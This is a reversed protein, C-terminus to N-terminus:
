RATHRVLRVLERGEIRQTGVSGDGFHVLWAFGPKSAYPSASWVAAGPDNPFASPDVTKGDPDIVLTALEEITALRWKLESTKAVGNGAIRDDAAIVDRHRAYYELANGGEEPDFGDDVAFARGQGFRAAADAWTMRQPEGVCTEGDWTQGLVCRQWVLRTQRDTVSGEVESFFRTQGAAGVTSDASQAATWGAAISLFGLMVWQM